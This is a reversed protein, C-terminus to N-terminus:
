WSGWNISAIKRISFITHLRIHNQNQVSGKLVSLTQLDVLYMKCASTRQRQRCNIVDHTVVASLRSLNWNVPADQAVCTFRISTFAEDGKLSLM